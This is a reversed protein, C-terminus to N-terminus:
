KQLVVKIVQRFSRSGDAAGVANMRVFYIGSPINEANWTVSQLGDDQTSNVLTAIGQGIINFVDLVVKSREPLYYQILTTPNFPNPFAQRLVYDQPNNVASVSRLSISRIPQTIIVSGTGSLVTEGGNLRLSVPQQLTIMNWNLTVPYAASSIQIPFRSNSLSGMQELRHGSSFRVDFVGAPPVPPLEAMRRMGPTEEGDNVLFLTQTNGERDRITLTGTQQARQDQSAASPAAGSAATLYLEGAQSTKLWYGSGPVVTDATYYSGNFGYLVSTIIGPPQSTLNGAPLPVSLSGILNWGQQASLSDRKVSFGHLVVSQTDNFKLWYGYGDNMTTLPTYSGQYAFARSVAAPFLTAVSNDSVQVPLSILNWGSLYTVGVDVSSSEAIVTIRGKMGANADPASIYYHVGTDALVVSGGGLPIRFGGNSVTDNVLWSGQSVEQANHSSALVFQVREGPLIAISDPVFTQGANIITHPSFNIFDIVHTESSSVTITWQNVAVAGQSVGDVAVSIHSWFQSDAEAAVYTGANLSGVNLSDGSSVSDLVIGSGVSDQYLKLGWQKFVRDNVSLLNGDQDVISRITISNPPPSANVTITGKMGISVHAQCVFYHIGPTTLVATGGGFPVRFGDNSTTDNANWTTHSVEVANHIAALSFLITDGIDVTLTSPSFSFGSTVITHTTCLGLSTFLMVLTVVIACKKM